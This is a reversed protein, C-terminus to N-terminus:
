QECNKCEPTRSNSGPVSVFGGTKLSVPMPKLSILVFFVFVSQNCCMQYYEMVFSLQSCAGTLAAQVFMQVFIRKLRYGNERVKHRIDVAIENRYLVRFM